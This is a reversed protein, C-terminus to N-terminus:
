GRKRKKSALRKKRRLLGKENWYLRQRERRSCDQSCFPQGSREVAFFKGCKPNHCIQTGFGHLSDNRLMWYLVSRIGAREYKPLEALRGLFVELTPPFSNLLLCLAQRGFDKILPSRVGRLFAGIEIGGHWGTAMAFEFFSRMCILTWFWTEEPRPEVLFGSVPHRPLERGQAVEWPPGVQYGVDALDGLLEAVVSLDAEDGRRLEMCLKLAASFLKQERRLGSLSEIVCVTELNGGAKMSSPDIGAVPGYTRVFAVLDEDHSANAFEVHLARKQVGKKWPPILYQRLLNWTTTEQPNASQPKRVRNSGFVFLTDGEQEVRIKEAWPPLEPQEVFKM